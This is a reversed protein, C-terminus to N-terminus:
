KPPEGKEAFKKAAYCGACLGFWAVLQAFGSFKLNFYQESIWSTVVCFGAIAYWIRPLSIYKFDFDDYLTLLLQRFVFKIGSIM